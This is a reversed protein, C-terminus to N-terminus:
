QWDELQLDPIRSFERQNHTVLIWGHAKAVAGIMMDLQGIPKGIHHLHSRIDGYIWAEKESFDVRVFDQLLRAVRLRESERDSLRAGFALEGVSISCVAVTGPPKTTLNQLISDGKGRLLQICVNTDILHSVKVM